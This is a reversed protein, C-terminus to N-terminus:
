ARDPPPASGLHALAHLAMLAFGLTLGAFLMSLPIELVVTKAQYHSVYTQEACLWAAYGCFVLVFLEVAKDLILRVPRPLSATLLDVSVHQRRGHVAAAGVFILWAFAISTVDEAWAVPTALVYRSLVAWCITLLIVAFATDALLTELVGAARVLRALL